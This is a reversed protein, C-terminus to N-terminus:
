SKGLRLAKFGIGKVSIKGPSGIGGEVLFRVGLINQVLEINTLTHSTLPSTTIESTGEALAMYPILQDAMHYDVTIRARLQKTLEQAAEKGVQESPKGPSGLSSAGIVAGYETEAWL